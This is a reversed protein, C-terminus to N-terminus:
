GFRMIAATIGTGLIFFVGFSVFLTFLPSTSKNMAYMIFVLSFFLYSIYFAALTFEQVSTFKMSKKAPHHKKELYEQDYTQEVRDLEKMQLSLDRVETTLTSEQSALAQTNTIALKYTNLDSQLTNILEMDNTNAGTAM